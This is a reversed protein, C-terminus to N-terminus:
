DRDGGSELSGGIMLSVRLGAGRHWPLIAGDHAHSNAKDSERSTQCRIGTIQGRIQAAELSYETCVMDDSAMKAMCGKSGEVLFGQM